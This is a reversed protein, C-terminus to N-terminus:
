WPYLQCISYSQCIVSVRQMQCWRTQTATWARPRCRARWMHQCPHARPRGRPQWCALRWCVFGIREVMMAVHYYLNLDRERGLGLSLSPESLHSKHAPEQTQTQTQSWAKLRGIRLCLPATLPVSCRFQQLRHMAANAQDCADRPVWDCKIAKLM